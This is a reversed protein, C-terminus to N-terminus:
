VHSVLTGRFLLSFYPFTCSYLSFYLPIALCGVLVLVVLVEKDGFLNM